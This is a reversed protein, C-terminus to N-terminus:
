KATAKPLTFRFCSGQEEGSSEVWIRGNYNEVIKKVMALGLGIGSSSKDLKEFMGFIRDRFEPAVGIGNDRVFFVPEDDQFEVGLEVRPTPQDGLYKVANDLLNQWIQALRPRDGTLILEVDAVRVDVNQEAIQGAVASIAESALQRFTMSSPPNGRRGIRSMELVENLLQDMKCTAARIYELDQQIKEADAAKLDQELYGLFSKVTVLPSRLDHSVTYIFQGIEDNKHRLQEEALKRETLDLVFCVAQVEGSVFQFGAAGSLVPVRHGDKHIYEKEWPPAYSQERLQQVIQRDLEAYEPPTITDWRLGRFAFEERGYGLMGLFADNVELFAGSTDAIVIGIVQSQIFARLRLDAERLRNEIRKHETVDSSIGCIGNIRGQQDRVALKTTQFVHQGDDLEVVEDTVLMKGTCLVIMDDAQQRNAVDAPFFDHSSKGLAQQRSVGFMDALRQNCALLCGEPDKLYILSPINDIITELLNQASRSANDAARMDAITKELTLLIVALGWSTVGFLALVASVLIIVNSQLPENYSMRYLQLGAILARFVINLLLAAAVAKEM